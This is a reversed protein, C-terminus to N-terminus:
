YNCYIEKINEIGEKEKLDLTKEFFTKNGRILKLKFDPKDINHLEIFFSYSCTCDCFGNKAEEKLIYVDGDKYSTIKREGCCNLLVNDNIFSISSNSENYKWKLTEYCKAENAEDVLKQTKLVMRGAFSGGCSTAEGTITDDSNCSIFIFVSFILLLYKM